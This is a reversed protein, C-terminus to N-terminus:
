DYLEKKLIDINKYSISIYDEGNAEAAESITTTPDYTLKQVKNDTILKEVDSRLTDGPLMIIYKIKGSKILTQAEDIKKDTLNNNNELSVVNLNYKDLFLFADNSVLLNNDDANQAALKIEADVESVKLKLDEYNSDIEKKLYSNSIYEEMGTRINQCLMLFNSPDMWLEEMGYTYEMGMTADVIKLNRNKNLMKVAYDKEEGLGNYVFLDSKSYDDLLKDSLKIIANPYISLVTSNNGYLQKTIYEIPYVTTYITINEMDNESLTCGSLLICMFILIFLKKM